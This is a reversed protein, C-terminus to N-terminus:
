LIIALIVLEDVPDLLDEWFDFVDETSDIIQRLVLFEVWTLPEGSASTITPDDPDGSLNAFLTENLHVTGSITDETGTAQVRFSGEGHEVFLAVEGGDGSESNVGSVSGQILFNREAIGMEFNIDVTSAQAGVAGAVGIDFALRDNVGQFFGEVTIEGGGQQLDLTTRYDLITDTGELVVLRLAIDEPSEDGEDILDAHGVENAPDPMGDTGPRYLIFRVGTAPAGVLEEDMVYHGVDPDYVFTKGRRFQSIIPANSPGGDLLSATEFIRGAFDKAGPTDLPKALDGGMRVALEAEPAIGQFSVGAGLARFGDMADSQLILDLAEYDALAAEADFTVKDKPETGTECAAAFAAVMALALINKSNPGFM